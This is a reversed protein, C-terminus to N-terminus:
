LVLNGLMSGGLTRIIIRVIILKSWADINIYGSALGQKQTSILKLRATSPRREALWDVLMEQYFVLVRRVAHLTSLHSTCLSLGM